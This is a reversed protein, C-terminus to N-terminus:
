ATIRGRTPSPQRLRWLSQLCFRLTKVELTQGRFELWPRVEQEPEVVLNANVAALTSLFRPRVRSHPRSHVEFPTRRHRFTLHLLDTRRPLLSLM